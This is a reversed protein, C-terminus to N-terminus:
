FVKHFKANFAVGGNEDRSATVSWRRTIQYEGQVVERQANTVPKFTKLAM